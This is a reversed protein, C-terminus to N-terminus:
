AIVVLSGDSSPIVTSRNPRITIALCDNIAIAISVLARYRPLVTWANLSASGAIKPCEGRDVVNIVVATTLLSKAILVSLAYRKLRSIARGYRRCRQHWLHDFCSNRLSSGFPGCDSCRDPLTVPPQNYRTDRVLLDARPARSTPDGIWGSPVRLTDPPPWFPGRKSGRKPAWFPGMKPPIKPTWFPPIKPPGGPAGGPAGPPGPPTCKRPYKIVRGTPVFNAGRNAIKGADPFDPQIKKANKRPGPAGGPTGAPASKPGRRSGGFLPYKPPGGPGGWSGGLFPGFLGGFPGGPVGWFPPIKPTGGPDGSKLPLLM